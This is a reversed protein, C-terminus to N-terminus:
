DKYLIFLDECKGNDCNFFLVINTFSKHNIVRWLKHFSNSEILLVNLGSNKEIALIALNFPLNKLKYIESDNLVKPLSNILTM